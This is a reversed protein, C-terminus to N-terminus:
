QRETDNSKTEGSQHQPNSNVIGMRIASIFRTHGCETCSVALMPMIATGGIVMDGGMFERMEFITDNLMWSNNGCISCARRKDKHKDLKSIVLNAQEKTLKM